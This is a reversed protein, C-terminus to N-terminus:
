TRVTQRPTSGPKAMWANHEHARTADTIHRRIALLGPRVQLHPRAARAGSINVLNQLSSPRVHHKNNPGQTRLPIPAQLRCRQYARCREARTITARPPRDAVPLAPMDKSKNSTHTEKARMRPPRYNAIHSRKRGLGKRACASPASKVQSQYCARRPPGATRAASLIISNRRGRTTDDWMAPPRRGPSRGVSRARYCM